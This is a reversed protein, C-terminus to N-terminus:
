PTQPAKMTIRNTTGSAFVYVDIELDGDPKTVFDIHDYSEPVFNTVSQKMFTALDDYNTPWRKDAQRFTAVQDELSPM